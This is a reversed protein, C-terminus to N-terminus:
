RHEAVIVISSPGTGVSVESGIESLSGTAQDIRFTTVDNSLRNTVFVFMGSPDVAVASPGDGARVEAGIETLAGTDLDVAFTTVDDSDANAVYAFLGDPHCAMASPGTGTGVFGSAWLLQGILQQPPMPLVGFQTNVRFTAVDDFVDNPTFVFQGTPHVAMSRWGTGVAAEAQFTLGGTGADIALSAISGSAGLVYLNQGTPETVLSIPAAQNDVFSPSLAGTTADVSFTTVTGALENAVYLFRGSPELALAAAGAGAAVASGLPTLLGTVPNATFAAVDGSIRNGVYVFRGSRSAVIASPGDGAAVASGVRRLEGTNQDVAFTTVDGSVENTVYAFRPLALAPAVGSTMALAGSFQRQMRTYGLSQLAGTAPDIRYSGLYGNSDVTAFGPLTVFNGAARGGAYLFPGFPEITVGGALAAPNEQAADSPVGTVPDLRLVTMRDFGGAFAFAGTPALEFSELTSGFQTLGLAVPAGVATLAGTTQDIALTHVDDSFSNAVYVFRGAPDVRVAVPNDGVPVASGVATLSGTSQDIEFTTVDDDLQNAVYLFRGSAHVALCCPRSGALVRGGIRTLMGSAADIAYAVVFDPQGQVEYIVYVFRGTPDAVLATSSGGGPIPPTIGIEGLSGNAQDIAFMSVDGGAVYAYRGSPEILIETALARQFAGRSQLRGTAANVAFMLIYPDGASVAYAYRPFTNIATTSGGSGSGSGSCGSALLVLALAVLGLM